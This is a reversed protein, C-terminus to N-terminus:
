PSCSGLQSVFGVSTSVSGMATIYALSTATKCLGFGAALAVSLLAADKTRMLM